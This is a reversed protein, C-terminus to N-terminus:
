TARPALYGNLWMGNMPPMGSDDRGWESRGLILFKSLLERHVQSQGILQVSSYGKRTTRADFDAVAHGAERRGERRRSGIAPELWPRRSTLSAIQKGQPPGGLGWRDARGGGPTDDPKPVKRVTTPYGCAAAVLLKACVGAILACM